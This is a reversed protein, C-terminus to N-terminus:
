GAPDFVIPAAPLALPKPPPALPAAAAPAVPRHADRIHKPPTRLDRVLGIWSLLKLAYYSGDIEWWFWGQNATSMYFHHNNHWGEGLTLLALLFNNKSDDSTQYRRSGFVHSLSNITFTGHWLLVTSVFFGWVLLGWGGVLFLLTALAVPPVLHYKNLWRLEPYKAFDGIRETKTRNNKACLIWGVHSWWFGRQRPSHLDEPQDSFKHHDRHHAAWWLVGKQAATTGLLALLFQFGRSTKYSRHSFYRHFGATVGFMRLYYLGIAVVPYYWHFGVFFAGLAALHVAFFPISSIRDLRESRPRSASVSM